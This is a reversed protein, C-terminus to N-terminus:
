FGQCVVTATRFRTFLWFTYSLPASLWCRTATALEQRVNNGSWWDKWASPTDFPEATRFIVGVSRGQEDFAEVNNPFKKYEGKHRTDKTSHQLLIDHLQKIHNETIAIEDYSEFVLEMADAYGAVEQEDRSQFSKKDIASLLDNVQADSLHAGEIRTSSGISAITAVKRLRSLSEPAINKLADWRGKFEDIEAIKNVMESPLDNPLIIKIKYDQMGMTKACTVPAKYGYIGMSTLFSGRFDRPLGATPRHLAAENAKTDARDPQSKLSRKPQTKPQTETDPRRLGMVILANRCM